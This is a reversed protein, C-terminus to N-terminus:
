TIVHPKPQRPKPELWQSEIGQGRVMKSVANWIGDKQQKVFDPSVVCFGQKKKSEVSSVRNWYTFIVM